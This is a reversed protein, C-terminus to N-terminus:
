ITVHVTVVCLVREGTCYWFIEGGTGVVLFDWDWLIGTQRKVSIGNPDCLLDSGMEISSARATSEVLLKINM